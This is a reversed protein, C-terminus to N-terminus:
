KNTGGTRTNLAHVNYLITQCVFDIGSCYSQRGRGPCHAILYRRNKITLNVKLCKLTVRFADRLVTEIATWSNLTKMLCVASLLVTTWCDGYIPPTSSGSAAATHATSGSLRARDVDSRWKICYQPPTQTMARLRFLRVSVLCTWCRNPCAVLIQWNFPPPATAHLVMSGLPLRGQTM